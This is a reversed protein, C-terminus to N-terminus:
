GSIRRSRHIACFKRTARLPVPPRLGGGERPIELVFPSVAQPHCNSKIVNDATRENVLELLEANRADLALSVVGNTAHLRSEYM